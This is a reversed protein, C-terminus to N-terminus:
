QKLYLPRCSCDAGCKICELDEDKNEQGCQCQWYYKNDVFIAKIAKIAEIIKKIM